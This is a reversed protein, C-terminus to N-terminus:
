ESTNSCVDAGSHPVVQPGKDRVWSEMRYGTEALEEQMNHNSVEVLAM